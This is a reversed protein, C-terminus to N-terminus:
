DCSNYREAFVAITNDPQERTWALGEYGWYWNDTWWTAFQEAQEKTAFGTFIFNTKRGDNHESVNLILSTDFDTATRYKLM